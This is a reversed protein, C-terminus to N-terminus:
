KCRAFDRCDDLRARKHMQKKEAAEIDKLEQNIGKLKDEASSLAMSSTAQMSVVAGPAGGGTTAYNFNGAASSAQASQAKAATAEQQADSRQLALDAKKSGLEQMKAKAGKMDRREIRVSQEKGGRGQQGQVLATSTTLAMLLATALVKAKM